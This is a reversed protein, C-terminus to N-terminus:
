VCVQRPELELDLKSLSNAVVVLPRTPLLGLHREVVAEVLGLLWAPRPAPASLDSPNSGRLPPPPQRKAGVKPAIPEAPALLRPPSSSMPDDLKRNNGELDGLSWKTTGAPAMVGTADLSPLTGTSAADEVALRAEEEAVRAEQRWGGIRLKEWRRRIHVERWDLDVGLGDPQSASSSSADGLAGAVSSRIGISVEEIKSAYGAKGAEAGVTNVDHRDKQTSIAAASRRRTAEGRMEAARRVLDEEEQRLRQERRWLDRSAPMLVALAWTVNSLDVANWSGELSMFRQYSLFSPLSLLFILTVLSATSPNVMLVMFLILAKVTTLM